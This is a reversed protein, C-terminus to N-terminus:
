GIKGFAAEFGARDGAALLRAQEVWKDRTIRGQLPGMAADVTAVQETGLAALQSFRTIGLAALQSAAKPGLGKITTLVDASADDLAHDHHADIGLVEGLVDEVAAAAEDAVGHGEAAEPEIATARALTPAPRHPARPADAADALTVRQRRSRLVLLGLLAVVAVIGLVLLLVETTM